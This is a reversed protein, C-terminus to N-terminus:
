VDTGPRPQFVVNEVLKGIGRLHAQVATQASGGAPRKDFVSTFKAPDTLIKQNQSMLIFVGRVRSTDPATAKPHDTKMPCGYLERGWRRRASGGRLPPWPTFAGKEVTQAM